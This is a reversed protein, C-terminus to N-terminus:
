ARAVRKAARKTQAPLPPRGITIMLPFPTKPLPPSSAKTHPFVRAHADDEPEQVMAVTAVVYLVVSRKNRLVREHADSGRCMRARLKHSPAAGFPSKTPSFSFPSRPGRARAPDRTCVWESVRVRARAGVGMCACVNVRTFVSLCWFHRRRSLSMYARVCTCAGARVCARVRVTTCARVYVCRRVCQRVCARGCRCLCPMHVWM